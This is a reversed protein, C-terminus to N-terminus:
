NTRDAYAALPFLQRCSLLVLWVIFASVALMLPLAIAHAAANGALALKLVGNLASTMGFTYAWYTRAFPQAKFWPLMRLGLLLQYLGYGLLIAVWPGPLAPDILLLSAACVAAPAAQIGMLPRRAPPIAPQHWLAHKIVPELTLWSCVGAGLFLWAWDPQGLVGLAAASTFNGAVDPLYLAPSMDKVDRRGQWLKAYAHWLAFGLHWSIGAAALVWAATISYRALGPVLVLTSIGILSGLSGLATDHFERAALQPARLYQLLYGLMLGAWVMLTFLLELQGWLPAIDWLRAANLLAYGLGSLGLVMSFSSVPLAPGEATTARAGAHDTMM